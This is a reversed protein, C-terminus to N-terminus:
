TGVAYAEARKTAASSAALMEIEEAPKKVSLELTASDTDVISEPWGETNHSILGRAACILVSNLGMSAVTFCMELLVLM